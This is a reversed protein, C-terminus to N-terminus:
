CKPFCPTGVEHFMHRHQGGQQDHGHQASARGDVILCLREAIFCRAIEGLLIDALRICLDRTLSVECQLAIRDDAFIDALMLQLIALHDIVVLGTLFGAIGRCGEAGDGKAILAHAIIMIGIQDRRGAHDDVKGM